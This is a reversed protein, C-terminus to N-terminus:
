GSGPAPGGAKWGCTTIRPSKALARSRSPSENRAKWHRASVPDPERPDRRPRSRTPSHDPDSVPVHHHIRGPPRVIWCSFTTTPVPQRRASSPRHEAPQARHRARAPRRDPAGNEPLCLRLRFAFRRAGPRVRGLRPAAPEVVQRCRRNRVHRLRQVAADGKKRLVGVGIKVFTEGPKATSYGQPRQFEEAPGLAGSQASVVIDQGRYVFDRVSPDSGSFWPGYYEHGKYELSGVM